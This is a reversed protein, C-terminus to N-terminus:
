LSHAVSALISSVLRAVNATICVIAVSLRVCNMGDDSLAEGCIRVSVTLCISIIPLLEKIPRAAACVGSIGEGPDNNNSAVSLILELANKQQM